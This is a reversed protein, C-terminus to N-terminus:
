AFNKSNHRACLLHEILIVTNNNNNVNVPGCTFVINVLIGARLDLVVVFNKQIWKRMVTLRYTQVECLKNQERAM